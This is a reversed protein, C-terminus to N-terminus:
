SLYGSLETRFKEAVPMAQEFIEQVRHFHLLRINRIEHRIYIDPQLHNM